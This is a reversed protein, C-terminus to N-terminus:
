QLRALVRADRSAASSAARGAARSAFMMEARDVEGFRGEDLDALNLWCQLSVQQEAATDGYLQSPTANRRDTRVTHPPAAPAPPSRVARRSLASSAPPHPFSHEPLTCGDARAIIPLALIRSCLPLLLSAFARPQVRAPGAGAADRARADLAALPACHRAARLGRSRPVRPAAARQAGLRGSTPPAVRAGRELRLAAYPAAGRREARGRPRRGRRRGCCQRETRRWM